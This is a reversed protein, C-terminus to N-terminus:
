TSGAQLIARSSLSCIMLRIFCTTWTPSLDMLQSNNNKYRYSWLNSFHQLYAIVTYHVLVSSVMQVPVFPVSRAEESVGQEYTEMPAPSPKPKKSPPKYSANGLQIDRVFQRAIFSFESVLSSPLVRGTARDIRNFYNGAVDLSILNNNTEPHFPNHVVFDFLIFLASLPMVGLIRFLIDAISPNGLISTLFAKIKGFLHTLNFIL